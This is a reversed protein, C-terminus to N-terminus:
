FASLIYVRLVFANIFPKPSLVGFKSSVSEIKTGVRSREQGVSFLTLKIGPAVRSGTERVVHCFLM